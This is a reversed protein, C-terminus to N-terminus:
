SSASGQLIPMEAPVGQEMHANAGPVPGVPRPPGDPQGPTQAKATLPAGVAAVGALGAGKLLGRRSLKSANRAKAMKRERDQLSKGTTQPLGAAWPLTLRRM